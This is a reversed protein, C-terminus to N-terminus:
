RRSDLAVETVLVREVPQGAVHERGALEVRVRGIADAQAQGALPLALAPCAAPAPPACPGFGPRPFYTLVLRTVEVAALAVPGGGDDRVLCRPVGPPCGPGPSVRYRVDEEARDPDPGAVVANARGALRGNGSRDSRVRVADVALDAVPLAALGTCGPGGLGNDAAYGASLRAQCAAVRAPDCDGAGGPGVHDFACLTPDRGAAALERALFDLAARLDDQVEVVAAGTLYARHAGAWLVTVGALVVAVVALGIV